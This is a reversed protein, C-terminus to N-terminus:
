LAFSVIVRQLKKTSKKGKNPGITKLANKGAFVYRGEEQYSVPLEVKQETKSNLLIHVDASSSRM